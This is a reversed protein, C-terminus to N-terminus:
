SRGEIPSPVAGGSVAASAVGNVVWLPPEGSVVRRCNAICNTMAVEYADYTSGAMHPTAVVNPRTLLPDGAVTPEQEYVDLGAGRLRGSGLAEVLAAGDVLQARSVNILVAGPKMRALAARDILGRTQDNLHLHLSLIDSERLLTEPDVFEAGIEREVDAPARHIDHYLVRADFGRVRRAVHRGINGFGYLGVTKRHLCFMDMGHSNGAWRGQVTRAHSDPLWKNVALMLLVAHEAVSIANAGGNNAVPIGWRAAGAINFKDYGSSWLQMLKVRRAAELIDDPLHRGPAFLVVDAQRFLEIQEDKPTLYTMRSVRFIDEPIFSEVLERLKQPIREEYVYLLNAPSTM